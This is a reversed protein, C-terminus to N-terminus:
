KLIHVIVERVRFSLWGAYRASKITQDFHKFYRRDVFEFLSTTGQIFVFVPGLAKELVQGLRISCGVPAWVYHRFLKLM